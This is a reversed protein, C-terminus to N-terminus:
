STHRPKPNFRLLAGQRIAFVAVALVLLATAGAEIPATIWWPVPTSAASDAQAAELTAVQASLSLQEAELATMQETMVTMASDLAAQTIGAAAGSSRPLKLVHYTREIHLDNTQIDWTWVGNRPLTVNVSWAGATDGPEADFNVVEGADSMATFYPDPWDVQTVGHQNLTFDIRFEDGATIDDPVVIDDATAWGGARTSTSFALLAICVVLISGILVHIRM